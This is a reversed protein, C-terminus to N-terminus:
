PKRYIVTFEGSSQELNFCWQGPGHRRLAAEWKLEHWLQEALWPHLANLTVHRREIELGTDPDWHRKGAYYEPTRWSWPQGGNWDHDPDATANTGMPLKVVLTGGPRLLRAAESLAAEVDDLHEILHYARITDWKGSEWPWPLEELNYIEDPEVSPDVDVNWADDHYDLGCGLNLIDEDDRSM